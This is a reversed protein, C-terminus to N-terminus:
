STRTCTGSRPNALSRFNEDIYQQHEPNMTQKINDLGSDRWQAGTASRDSDDIYSVVLRGAIWGAAGWPGGVATALIFEGINTASAKGPNAAAWRSYDGHTRMLGSTTRVHVRGGSQGVGMPRLLGHRKTDPRLRSIHCWRPGQDDTMMDHEEDGTGGHGNGAGGTIANWGNEIQDTTWGWRRGDRRVGVQGLDGLSGGNAMWDIMGGIAASTLNGIAEIQMMMLTRETEADFLAKAANNAERAIMIRAQRDGLRSIADREAEKSRLALQKERIGFDMEALKERSARDLDTIGTQHIRDLTNQTSQWSNRTELLAQEMTMGQDILRQTRDHIWQEQQQTGRIWERSGDEGVVFYGGAHEKQLREAIEQTGEIHITRTSLDPRHEPGITQVVKDYGVRQQETGSAGHNPNPRRTLGATACWSTM